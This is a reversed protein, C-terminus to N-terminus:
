RIYTINNEYGSKVIYDEVNSNKIVAFITNNCHDFVNNDFRVNDSMITMKNMKGCGSFAKYGIEDLTNPLTMETMECKYFSRSGIKELREGEFVFTTPSQASESYFANDGIASVNKPIKVTVDGVFEANYFLNEPIYTMDENLVVSTLACNSFIHSECKRINTSEIIVEELSRCGAFAYGDIRNVLYPITVSKIKDCGEFAKYGITELSDPLNIENIECKYFSKSGIDTLKNGKFIIRIPSKSSESYFASDGITLVNQPIEVVTEPRFEANYFLYDPIYTMDEDLTVNALACGSFINFECNIINTAEFNLDTLSSCNRFAEGGIKRVMSPITIESILSCNHFAEYGITELSDPLVVEDLMICGDFAKRDIDKVSSLAFNVSHIGTNGRFAGEAVRTASAPIVIDTETGTYGTIVTGDWVFAAEDTAELNARVEAVIEKPEEQQTEYIYVGGGVASAAIVGTTAKIAVSKIARKAIVKGTTKTVTAVDQGIDAANYVSSAVGAGASVANYTDLVNMGVDAVTSAKAVVNSRFYLMLLAPVMALLRTGTKKQYRSVGEAVKKRGYNLRSKVADVPVQQVAAVEAISMQNYYYLVLAQRQADPLEQMGKDM